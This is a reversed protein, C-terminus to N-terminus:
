AEVKTKIVETIVETKGKFREQLAESVEKDACAYAATVHVGLKQLNNVLEGLAIAQELSCLGMCDMGVPTFIHVHVRETRRRMAHFMSWWYFAVCIALLVTGLWLWDALVM